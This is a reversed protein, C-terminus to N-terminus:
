SVAALQKRQGKCERVILQSLLQTASLAETM